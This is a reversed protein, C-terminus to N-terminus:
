GSGGKEEEGQDGGHAVTREASSPLTGMFFTSSGRMLSSVANATLVFLKRNLVLRLSM